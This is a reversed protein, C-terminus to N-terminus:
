KPIFPIVLQDYDKKNTSDSLFTSPFPKLVTEHKYSQLACILTNIELDIALLDSKNPNLFMGEVKEEIWARKNEITPLAASM